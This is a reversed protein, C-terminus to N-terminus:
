KIALNTCFADIKENHAEVQEKEARTWRAEFGPSPVIKRDWGCASSVPRPAACASISIAILSLAFMRTSKRLRGIRSM